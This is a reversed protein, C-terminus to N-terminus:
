REVTAQPSVTAPPARSNPSSFSQGGGGGGAGGGVGSGGLAYSGQIVYSTGGATAVGGGSSAGGTTAASVSQSTVSGGIDSDSSPTTEYYASSAAASSSTSAPTQSYLPSDSFSYTSSRSCPRSSCIVFLFSLLPAAAEREVPELCPTPRRWKCPPHTSTPIKQEATWLCRALTCMSWRLPCCTLPFIHHVKLGTSPLVSLNVFCAVPEERWSVSTQM